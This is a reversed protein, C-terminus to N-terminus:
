GSQIQMLNRNFRLVCLICRLFASIFIYVERILTAVLVLAFCVHKNQRPTAVFLSSTCKFPPKSPNYTDTLVHTRGGSSFFLVTKQRDEKKTPSGM